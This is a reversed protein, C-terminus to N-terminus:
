FNSIPIYDDSSLQDYTWFSLIAQPPTQEYCVVYPEDYSSGSPPTEWNQSVLFMHGNTLLADGPQLDAYDGISSYNQRFKTTNYRSNGQYPLGWCIAVFASCDNGYNPMYTGSGYGDYFDSYDLADLFENDDTQNWTQSYPIGFQLDGAEFTYDYDWGILDEDPSWRVYVMDSAKDVMDRRESSESLLGMSNNTASLAAEMRDVMEETVDNEVTVQFTQTQNEYTISVEATGVGTALIRGQYAVVVDTDTTTYEVATEDVDKGFELLTSMGKYPFVLESPTSSRTAASFDVDLFEMFSNSSETQPILIADLNNEATNSAYVLNGTSTLGTALICALAACKKISSLKM